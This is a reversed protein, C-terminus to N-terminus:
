LEASTIALKWCMGPLLVAMLAPAVATQILDEKKALFDQQRRLAFLGLCDGNKKLYPKGILIYAFQHPSWVQFTQPTRTDESFSWHLVKLVDEPSETPHSVQDWPMTEAQRVPFCTVRINRSEHTAGGTVTEVSM